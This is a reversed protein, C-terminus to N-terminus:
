GKGTPVLRKLEEFWNLIIRLERDPPQDNKVVMVFSRDDPSIDYGYHNEQPLVLNELEFLPEISGPEGSEPDVKAAMLRKGNLFFLRDGAHSWCVPNSGGSTSIQRKGGGGQVRQLYIEDHGSEDSSYAIWRGNPSFKPWAENFSTVLFPQPKREGKLPLLWIDRGTKPNAEWFALLSGDASVSGPDRQYEGLLLQEPEGSGDSIKWFLNTRGWTYVIRKGDPTWVPSLEDGFGFTFRTLQRREPDFVWIDDNAAAIRVAIRGDPSFAPECFNGDPLLPRVTGNLDVLVLSNEPKYVGGLAYVLTGSRSVAFHAVGSMRGSQINDLVMNPSGKVQFKKLDFPVALLTGNRVYVLHGTALYRGFTGGRVLIRPEKQGIVQVAIYADDASTIDGPIITFLIAKGGPLIQPWLHTIEGKAADPVTLTQPAGGAAPVRLLGSGWLPTFVITNDDGWTGCIGSTAECITTPAGGTLALTKLKGDAFFGIRQGDPSFFPGVANETGELPFSEIKDLARLFFQNRGGREGIFILKIGDPSLDLAQFIPRNASFTDPM